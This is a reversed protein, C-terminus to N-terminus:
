SIFGLLICGLTLIDFEYSVEVISPLRNWHKSDHTPPALALHLGPGWWGGWVGVRFIWRGPAGLEMHCPESVSPRRLDWLHFIEFKEAQPRSSYSSAGNM